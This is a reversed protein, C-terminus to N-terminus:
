RSIASRAAGYGRARDAGAAGGTRREDSVETGALFEALTTIPNLTASLGIRVPRPMGNHRVMRELRELTLALHAGRKNGAVAHLEDVIVYRVAALKTRFRPSTLLIFLSEPTTVLIQPPRRLMAGREAVPTDGTRLGARIPAWELGAARAADRVGALPEELNLRIDNALAKLPSVYLVAVEDQSRARRRKWYWNISRGCFPPSRKAAEPRRVCCCTM